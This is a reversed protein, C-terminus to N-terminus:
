FDRIQGLLEEDLEYLVSKDLHKQLYLFRIAPGVIEQGAEAIVDTPRNFGATMVVDQVDPHYNLVSGASYAGWSHGFLMIPLHVLDPTNKVFRLSYDLDILAQPIGRVSDGESEDNGTADYAFVLYGHTSFYDALHLYSNHGGGGLGHALVIVGKPEINDKSYQYGM